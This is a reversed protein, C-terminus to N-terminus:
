TVGHCIIIKEKEREKEEKILNEDLTRVVKHSCISPMGMLPIITTPSPWAARDIANDPLAIFTGTKHAFPPVACNCSLLSTLLLSHFIMLAINNSM